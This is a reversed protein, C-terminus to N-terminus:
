HDTPILSQPIMQKIILEIDRQVQKLLIHLMIVKLFISRLFRPFKLDDPEDHILHGLVGIHAVAFLSGVSLAVWKFPNNNKLSNLKTESM